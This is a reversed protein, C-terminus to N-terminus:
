AISNFPSILLINAATTVNVSTRAMITLFLSVSLPCGLNIYADKKIPHGQGKKMSGPCAAVALGRGLFFPELFAFLGLLLM